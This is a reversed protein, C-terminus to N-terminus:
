IITNAKITVLCPNSTPNNEDIVSLYITDDVLKLFPQLKLGKDEFVFQYSKVENNETNLKCLAIQNNPAVCVFFIFKDSPAYYRIMGAFPKSESHISNVYDLRDYFDKQAIDKPIAYEGFDFYYLPHM